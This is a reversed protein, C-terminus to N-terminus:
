RRARLPAVNNPLQNEAAQRLTMAEEFDSEADLFLVPTSGDYGHDLLAFGACRIPNRSVCLRYGGVTAIFQYGGRRDRVPHVVVRIPRKPCELDDNEMSANTTQSDSHDTMAAGM